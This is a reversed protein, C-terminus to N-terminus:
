YPVAWSPQLPSAPRWYTGHQWKGILHAQPCSPMGTNQTFTIPYSFPFASKEWHASCPTRLSKREWARVACPLCLWGWVIILWALHNNPIWTLMYAFALLFLLHKVVTIVIQMRHTLTLKRLWAAASRRGPPPWNLHLHTRQSSKDPKNLISICPLANPATCSSATCASGPCAVDAVQHPKKIEPVSGKYQSEPLM